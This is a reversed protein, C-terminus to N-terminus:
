LGPSTGGYTYRSMVASGVYAGDRTLDSELADSSVSADYVGDYFRADLIQARPESFASNDPALGCYSYNEVPLEAQRFGGVVLLDHFYATNIEAIFTEDDCVYAATFDHGGLSEGDLMLNDTFAIRWNETDPFIWINISGDGSIHSSDISGQYDNAPHNYATFAPRGAWSDDCGDTLEDSYVMYYGEAGLYCEVGDGSDSFPEADIEKGDCGGLIVLAPLVIKRGLARLGSLDESIRGFFDSCSEIMEIM